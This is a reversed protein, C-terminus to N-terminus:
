LYQGEQWEEDDEENTRRELCKGYWAISSL